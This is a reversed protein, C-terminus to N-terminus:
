EVAFINTGKLISVASFTPPALERLIPRANQLFVFNTVNLAFWLCSLFYGKNIWGICQYFTRRRTPLYRWVFITTKINILRRNQVQYQRAVVFISELWCIIMFANSIPHALTKSGRCVNSYRKQAGKLVGVRRSILWIISSGAQQTTLTLSM